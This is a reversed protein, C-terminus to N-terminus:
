DFSRASRLQPAYAIFSTVNAEAQDTTVQEHDIGAIVPYEKAAAVRSHSAASENDPRLCGISWMWLCAPHHSVTFM